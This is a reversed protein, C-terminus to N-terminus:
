KENRGGEGNRFKKKTKSKFEGKKHWKEGGGVLLAAGDLVEERKDVWSM